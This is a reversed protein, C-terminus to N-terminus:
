KTRIESIVYDLLFYIDDDDDKGETNDACDDETKDIDVIVKNLHAVEVAPVHPPPQQDLLLPQDVPYLHLPDVHELYLLYKNDFGLSM